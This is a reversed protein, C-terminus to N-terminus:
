LSPFNALFALLLINLLSDLTFLSNLGNAFTLEVFLEHRVLFREVILPICLLNHEALLYVFQRALKLFVLKELLFAIVLLGLLLFLHL